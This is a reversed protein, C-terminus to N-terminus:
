PQYRALRDQVEVPTLMAEIRLQDRLGHVDAVALVVPTQIPQLGLLLAELSPAARYESRIPVEAPFEAGSLAHLSIGRDLQWASAAPDSDGAM